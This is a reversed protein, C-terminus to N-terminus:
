FLRTLLPQVPCAPPVGTPSASSALTSSAEAASSCLLSAETFTGQRTQLVFFHIVKTLIIGYFLEKFKSYDPNGTSIDLHVTADQTPPVDADLQYIFRNGLQLSLEDGV